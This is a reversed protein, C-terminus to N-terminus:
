AMAEQLRREEKRASLMQEIHSRWCAAYIHIERTTANELVAKAREDNLCMMKLWALAEHKNCNTRNKM